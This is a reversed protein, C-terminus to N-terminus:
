LRKRVSRERNKQGRNDLRQTVCEPPYTYPSGIQWKLFSLSASNVKAFVEPVTVRLPCPFITYYSVPANGTIIGCVSATRM